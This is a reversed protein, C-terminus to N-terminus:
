GSLEAIESVTGASAVSVSRDIRKMLSKLTRGPGVEVARDVGEAVLRQRAESYPDETAEVVSVTPSEELPEDNEVTAPSM